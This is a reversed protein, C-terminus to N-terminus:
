AAAAVPQDVHEIVDNPVGMIRRLFDPAPAGHHIAPPLAYMVIAMSLTIVGGVEVAQRLINYWAPHTESWVALERALVPGRENFHAACFEDGASEAAGAPMILYLCLQAELEIFKAARKKKGGPVPTATDGGGAAQAAAIKKLQDRVGAPLNEPMSDTGGAVSDVVQKAQNDADNKLDTVQQQTLRKGKAAQIRARVEDPIDTRRNIKQARTAM